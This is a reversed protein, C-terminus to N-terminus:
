IFTKEKRKLVNRIRSLRSELYKYSIELLCCIEKYSFGNIRLEFINADLFEFDNKYKTFQEHLLIDNMFYDPDKYDVYSYSIDYAVSNNLHYHKMSQLNRCYTILHRELCVLIYTYIMAGCDDKYSMIARNLAIMGEQVLDDYEVGCNKVKAYYKAALQMIVPKYKEYMIDVATDDNERIMYMVEYDNVNKYNM